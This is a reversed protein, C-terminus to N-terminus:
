VEFGDMFGVITDVGAVEFIEAVISWFAARCCIYVKRDCGSPLATHRKAEKLAAIDLSM